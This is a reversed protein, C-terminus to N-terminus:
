HTTFYHIVAGAFWGAPSVMGLTKAEQSTVGHIGLALGAGLNSEVSDGGAVSQLEASELIRM